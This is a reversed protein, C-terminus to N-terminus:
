QGGGAQERSANLFGAGGGEQKTEPAYQSNSAAQYAKKILAEKHLPSIKGGDGVPVYVPTRVDDSFNIEVKVYSAGEVLDNGDIDAGSKANEDIYSAKTAGSGLKKGAFAAIVQEKTEMPTAALERHVNQGKQINADVKAPKADKAKLNSLARELEAHDYQYVTEGKENVYTKQKMKHVTEELGLGLGKKQELVKGEYSEIKKQTQDQLRIQYGTTQRSQAGQERIRTIDDTKIEGQEVTRNSRSAVYTNITQAALEPSIIEEGTLKKILAMTADNQMLQAAGEPTVQVKGSETSITYQNKGFAERQKISLTGINDVLEKGVVEMNLHDPNDALSYGRNIVNATHGTINDVSLEDEGEPANYYKDNLYKLYNADVRIRDDAKAAELEANYSNNLETVASKAAYFKPMAKNMVDYQDVGILGQGSAEELANNLIDNAISGLKGQAAEARLTENMKDLSAQKKDAQRNVSELVRSSFSQNSTQLPNYINM